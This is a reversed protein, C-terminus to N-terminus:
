RDGLLHCRLWAKHCGSSCVCVASVPPPHPPHTSSLSPVCFLTVESIEVSQMENPLLKSRCQLGKILTRPWTLTLIWPAFKLFDCIFYDYQNLICNGTRHSENIDQLSLFLIWFHFYFFRLTFISWSFSHFSKMCCTSASLLESHLRIIGALM